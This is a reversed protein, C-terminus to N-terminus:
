WIFIGGIVAAILLGVIIIICGFCAKVGYKDEDKFAGLKNALIVAGIVIAVLLLWIWHFSINIM